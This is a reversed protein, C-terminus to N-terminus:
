FLRYPKATLSGIAISESFSRQNCPLILGIVSRGISVDSMDFTLHLEKQSVAPKEHFKGFNHKKLLM